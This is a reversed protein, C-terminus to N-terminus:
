FSPPVCKSPNLLAKVQTIFLYAISLLRRLFFLIVNDPSSTLSPSVPTKDILTGSGLNEECVFSLNTEDSTLNITSDIM